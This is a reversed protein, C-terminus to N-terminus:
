SKDQETATLSKSKWGGKAIISKQWELWREEEREEKSKNGYFYDDIEQQSCGDPLYDSM